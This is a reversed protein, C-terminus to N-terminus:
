TRIRGPRARAAIQGGLYSAYRNFWAPTLHVGDPQYCTENGRFSPIFPDFPIVEVGAKAVAARYRSAVQVVGGDNIYRAATHKARAGAWAKDVPSIHPTDVFFVRGSSRRLLTALALVDAAHRKAGIHQVQDNVGTLVITYDARGGLAKLAEAEKAGRYDRLIEATNRGSFGVSCAVVPGLTKSATVPLNPLMKGKSAWSEGIILIRVARDNAGPTRHCLVGAPPAKALSPGAGLLIVAAVATAIVKIM